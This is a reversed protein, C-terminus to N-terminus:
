LTSIHRTNRIAHQTTLLPFVDFIANKKACIQLTKKAIKAPNELSKRDFHRSFIPPNKQTLKPQNLNRPTSGCHSVPTLKKFPAFAFAQLALIQLIRNSRSAAFLRAMYLVVFPQDSGTQNRDSGPKNKPKVQNSPTQSCRIQLALKLFIGPVYELAGGPRPTTIPCTGPINDGALRRCGEPNAFAWASSQTAIM